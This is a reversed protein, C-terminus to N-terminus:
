LTCLHQLTWLSLQEEQFQKVLCLRYLHVLFGDDCFCLLLVKHVVSLQLTLMSCLVSAHGCICVLENYMFLVSSRISEGTEFCM